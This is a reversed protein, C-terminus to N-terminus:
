GVNLDHGRRASRVSSSGFLLNRIMRVARMMKIRRVQYGRHPAPLGTPSWDLVQITCKTMLTALAACVDKPAVDGRHMLCCTAYKMALGLEYASLTIEAM